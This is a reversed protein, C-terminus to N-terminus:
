LNPNLGVEEFQLRAYTVSPDFSVRTVVGIPPLNHRASVSRVHGDFFRLATPSVSLRWMPSTSDADVQMVALVRQNKCAKGDGQSGFENM